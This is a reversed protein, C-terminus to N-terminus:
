AGKADPASVSVLAHVIYHVIYTGTSCTRGQKRGAPGMGQVLM